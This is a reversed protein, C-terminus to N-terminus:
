QLAAYLEALTFGSEDTEDSFTAGYKAETLTQLREAADEQSGQHSTLWELSESVTFPRFYVNAMCRGPRAMADNLKEVTVNTSILTLVNLGQGMIGDAVNLLRGIAEGKSDRSDINVFNDGDEIVLLLWNKSTSVSFLLDNLYTADGALREPDTVVSLDCWSEWERFMSLISRTKGTGPPGHFLMLKGIGDPRDMGMIQQVQAQVEPPYNDAITAYEPAIIYRTRSTAGMTMPHQAWFDVPVRSEDLSDPTPPLLSALASVWRQTEDTSNAVVTLSWEGDHDFSLAAMSNGDVGKRHLMARHGHATMSSSSQVIGVQDSTLVDFVEHWVAPSEVRFSQIHSFEGEVFKQTLVSELANGPGVYTMDIISRAADSM